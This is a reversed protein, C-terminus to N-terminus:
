AVKKVEDPRPRKVSEDSSRMFSRTEEYIRRIGSQVPPNNIYPFMYLAFQMEEGEIIINENVDGIFHKIPVWKKDSHESSLKIQEDPNKLTAFFYYLGFNYWINHRNRRQANPVNITFPFNVFLDDWSKQKLGFRAEENFERVFANIPNEQHSQEDVTGGPFTWHGGTRRYVAPNLQLTLVEIQNDATIRTVFGTATKFLCSYTSHPAGALLLDFKSCQM